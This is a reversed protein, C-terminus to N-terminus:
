ILQRGKTDSTQGGIDINLIQQEQSRVACRTEVRQNTDLPVFKGAQGRVAVSM